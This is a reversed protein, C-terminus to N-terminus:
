TYVKKGSSRPGNYCEHISMQNLSPVCLESPGLRRSLIFRSENLGEIAVASTVKGRNCDNELREWGDVVIGWASNKHEM